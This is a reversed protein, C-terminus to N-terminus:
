PADRTRRRAKWRYRRLSIRGRTDFYVGEDELLQVQLGDCGPITRPSVEGKSNIVRQWPISSNEPLAHLAYGVLRAHRPFGALRAVQGYTAVRGRPIRRVVAYIRAYSSESRATGM